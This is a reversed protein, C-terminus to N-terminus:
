EDPDDGNGGDLRRVVDRNNAGIEARGTGLHMGLVAVPVLRRDSELWMWGDVPEGMDRSIM